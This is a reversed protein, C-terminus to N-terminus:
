RNNRVVAKQRSGNELETADWAAGVWLSMSLEEHGVWFRTAGL